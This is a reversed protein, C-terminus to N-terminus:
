VELSKLFRDRLAIINTAYPYSKTEKNRDENFCTKCFGYFMNEQATLLGGTRTIYGNRLTQDAVGRLKKWLNYYASKCKTMFGLSDEFVFGEIFEGNYKYEEDQVDNYLTKFDEWTKLEYAKTKVPCGIFTAIEKLTSYPTTEFELKNAIRDLLVLHSKSYKIIHPDHEIDIVEFVLSVAYGAKFPTTIYLQRLYELVKEKYPALLTAFYGAYDGRNTSKSAIFLDDNKYDYSVIGLFGNEKVYATVPFQLREKLAALETARVENIRFFKEYSRAIIKNNETDIFLGRALITQRNWNKGFFAERTFNFSSIGDGLPKEQVYKNNRLYTVAEEVTEVHRESTELNKDVPQCDELTIVKWALTKDLEVVRIHGGFEVKGELNFVRDAIQCPDSEVNRHGHLLYQNNATQNMWSEAILTYDEYSGVGKVFSTSPKYLLNTKLNPIGGHCALIEIGNFTFHSLQRVKRYFMRAAKEDYDGEILQLKTKSEFERSKAPASNGYDRLWREHNGELLCVNSKNMISNLWKMVEANQNGRDIYDGLFIYCTDDKLGEKFDPYQMLTNYCGHIDGVFVIKNYADTLDLPKEEIQSMATEPDLLKVGGPIKQTAFRAYINEIAEDPVWKYEPRLKNQKKCDELSVKTFDVCYMRYRYQDALDKYQQIDRTKSATADIVTFEGRSMRYELLEFLIKWTQKETEPNRVVAVSGDAHEERTSCKIRLEDPCLTYDELHNNRIWTSKGAGPAGRLILLTRM